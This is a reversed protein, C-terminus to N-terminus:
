TYNHVKAPQKTEAQHLENIKPTIPLSSQPHPITVPLIDLLSPPTDKPISAYNVEFNNLLDLWNVADSNSFTGYAVYKPVDARLRCLDIKELNPEVLIPSGEPLGHISFLNLSLIYVICWFTHSSHEIPFPKM